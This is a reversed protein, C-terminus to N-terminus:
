APFFYWKWPYREYIKRDINCVYGRYSHLSHIGPSRCDMQQRRVNQTNCMIVSEVNCYRFHTSKSQSHILLERFYSFLFTEFVESYSWKFCIYFVSSQLQGFTALVMGSYPSPWHAFVNCLLAENRQRLGYVSHDRAESTTTKHCWDWKDIDIHCVSKCHFHYILGRGLCVHLM